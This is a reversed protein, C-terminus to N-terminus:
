LLLLELWIMIFLAIAGIILLVREVFHERSHLFADLEAKMYDPYKKWYHWGCAGIIAAAPVFAILCAILMDILM